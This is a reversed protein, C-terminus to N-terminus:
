EGTDILGREIRQGVIKRSCHGVHAPVDEHGYQCDEDREKDRDSTGRFDINHLKTPLRCAGRAFREPPAEVQINQEGQEDAQAVREVEVDQIRWQTLMTR